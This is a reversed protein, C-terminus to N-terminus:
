MLTRLAEKYTRITTQKRGKASLYALFMEADRDQGLVARDCVEIENVIHVETRPPTPFILSFGKPLPNQLPRTGRKMM